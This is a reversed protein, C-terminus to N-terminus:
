QELLPPFMLTAKKIIVCHYWMWFVLIAISVIDICSLVHQPNQECPIKRWPYKTWKLFPSKTMLVATNAVGFCLSKIWLRVVRFCFYFFMAFLCMHVIFSKNTESMNWFSDETRSCCSHSTVYPAWLTHKVTVGKSQQFFLVGWKFIWVMKLVMLVLWQQIREYKKICNM